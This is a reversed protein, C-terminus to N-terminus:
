AGGRLVRQAKQFIWGVVPPHPYKICPLLPLQDHLVALLGVPDDWFNRLVIYRLVVYVLTNTKAIAFHHLQRIRDECLLHADFAVLKGTCLLSLSHRELVLALGSLLHLDDLVLEYRLELSFVERRFLLFVKCICVLFLIVECLCFVEIVLGQLVDDNLDLLVLEPKLPQLSTSM